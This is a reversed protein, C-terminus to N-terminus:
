VHLDKRAFTYRSLGWFITSLALLLVTPRTPVEGELAEQPRFWGFITLNKAWSFRDDLGSLIDLVYLTFTM